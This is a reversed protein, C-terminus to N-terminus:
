VSHICTDALFLVCIGPGAMYVSFGSKCRVCVYCWGVRWVRTWAGVWEGGVSGCGLRLYVDFVGGTRLHNTFGFKILEGEKWGRRGLWVCVCRM